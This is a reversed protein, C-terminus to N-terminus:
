IHILSLYEPAAMARRLSWEALGSEGTATLAVGYLYAAELNDNQELVVVELLEVAARARGEELLAKAEVVPDESTCGAIALCGFVVLM